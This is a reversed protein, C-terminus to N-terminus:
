VERKEGERVMTFSISYPGDAEMKVDIGNDPLARLDILHPYRVKLAAIIDVKTATVVVKTDRRANM